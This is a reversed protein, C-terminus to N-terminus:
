SERVQELTKLVGKSLEDSGSEIFVKGQSYWRMVQALYQIWYPDNESRTKLADICLETAALFDEPNGTEFWKTEIKYTLVKEGAQMAKTLTEYLINEEIIESKFYQAIREELIIVGLYHEGQLNAIQNKSFEKVQSNGKDDKITWAGGFKKGVEIHDMTLLTAIPKNNKHYQVMNQLVYPASPLIVEDANLVLIPGNGKLSKWANHIGGASGLLQKSEDSFIIKSAKPKVDKVLQHIEGPLHHTNIVLNKIKIDELLAQSFCILPVTLFPIAPKPLQNTYPRLRTGQGAALIM